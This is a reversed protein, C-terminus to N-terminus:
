INFEREIYWEGLIKSIMSLSSIASRPLGSDSVDGGEQSSNCWPTNGTCATIVSWNFLSSHFRYIYVLCKNPKKPNKYM